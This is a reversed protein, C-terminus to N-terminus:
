RESRKKGVLRRAVAAFNSRSINASTLDASTETQCTLPALTPVKQKSQVIRWETQRRREWWSFNSSAPMRRFCDRSMTVVKTPGSWGLEAADALQRPDSNRACTCLFSAFIRVAIDEPFVGGSWSPGLQCSLATNNRPPTNKKIM